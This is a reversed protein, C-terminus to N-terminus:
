ILKPKTKLQPQYDFHNQYIFKMDSILTDIICNDNNEIDLFLHLCEKIEADKSKINEIILPLCTSLTSPPINQMVSFIGPSHYGLENSYSEREIKHDLLDCQYLFTFDKKALYDKESSASLHYNCDIDDAFFTFCSKFFYNKEKTITTIKLDLYKPHMDYTYEKNQYNIGFIYGDNDKFFDKLKEQLKTIYNNCNDQYEGFTMKGEDRIPQMARITSYHDEISTRILILNNREKEPLSELINM